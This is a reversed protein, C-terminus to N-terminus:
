GWFRSRSVGHGPRRTHGVALPAWSRDRAIVTAIWLVLTVNFIFDGLISIAQGAFLLRWNRNRWLGGGGADNAM